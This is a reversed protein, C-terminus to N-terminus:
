APGGGESRVWVVFGDDRYTRRWAHTLGVAEDLPSDREVLLTDVRYRRLAARWDSRLRAIRDFDSWVALPYPDARGDLFVRLHPADLALGCWAFDACFLRREGPLAALSAIARAGLRDRGRETNRLLGIGVAVALLASVLPLAVRAIREAREDSSPGDAAFLRLGRTLAPAVFPVAALSFIAINRAAGLVLYTMAGLVLLDRIRRKGSDAFFLLALVLLPLAGVAFATDSLVTPQWENIQEKIPSSFLMLSYRPLDWGLPNCCLALASGFAVILMRRVRATFARDDIAAGLTAVAALVPALMASAHLNSWLAVVAIAAFAWPGESDLLFLYLALLPWAVVQVRVGFSAFLGIGALATCFVVARSSAGRRVAHYAVIGLALVAGLAIAGAFLAWPLGATAQAAVLSFAWEQPTWPAGPATFTETGLTRPIAHRALIARGLWRQWHLDGDGQPFAIATALFRAAFVGLVLWVYKVFGAGPSALDRDNGGDRLADL